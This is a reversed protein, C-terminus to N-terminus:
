VGRRAPPTGGYLTFGGIDRPRTVGPRPGMALGRSPKILIIVRFEWQMQCDSQCHTYQGGPDM